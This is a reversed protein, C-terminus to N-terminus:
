TVRGRLADAAARLAPNDAPLDLLPTGTEDFRRVTEDEPICGWFDLNQPLDAPPHDSRNVILGSKRAAPATKHLLDAILVATQMGRRSGDTVIVPLDVRRLVQRNVQEIGAEADVIVYRFGAALHEIATRLLTNVPCFCGRSETRGMALLSFRDHETLAELVRFDVTRATADRDAKPNEAVRILEEKVRGITKGTDAGVAYALGGAPDADVLLLLSQERDPRDLLVRAMLASAVTKGTGGKGLVAIVTAENM